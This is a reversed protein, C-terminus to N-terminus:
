KKCSLRDSEAADLGARRVALVGDQGAVRVADAAELDRPLLLVVDVDPAGFSGRDL